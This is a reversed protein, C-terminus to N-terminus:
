ILESLCQVLRLGRVYPWLPKIQYKAFYDTHEYFFVVPQFALDELGIDGDLEFVWHDECDDGKEGLVTGGTLHIELRVPAAKGGPSQHEILVYNKGRHSWPNFIALDSEDLLKTTSHKEHRRLIDALHCIRFYKNKPMGNPHDKHVQKEVDQDMVAAPYGLKVLESPPPPISPLKDELLEWADPEGRKGKVHPFRTVAVVPAKTTNKLGYIGERLHKEWTEVDADSFGCHPPAGASCEGSKRDGELVLRVHFIAKNTISDLADKKNRGYTCIGLELHEIYTAHELKILRITDAPTVKWIIEGEPSAKVWLREPLAAISAEQSVQAFDSM